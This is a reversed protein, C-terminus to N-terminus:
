TEKSSICISASVERKRERVSEREGESEREKEGESEREGESEKEKEGGCERGRERESESEGVRERERKIEEKKLSHTYPADNRTWVLRSEELTLLKM